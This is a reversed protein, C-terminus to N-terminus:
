RRRRSILARSKVMGPSIMRRSRPTPAQAAEEAKRKAEAAKAKKKAEAATVDLRAAEIIRFAELEIDEDLNIRGKGRNLVM